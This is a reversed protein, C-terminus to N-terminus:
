INGIEVWPVIGTGDMLIDSRNGGHVLISKNSPQYKQWYKLGQLDKSDPKKTSKVEIVFVENNKELVLDVENDASDRFYYMGGNVGTKARNKKIETIMWNEFIGGYANHKLLAVQSTLNLLYCLLGTDYFYLKPSKIIPKNLNNAM